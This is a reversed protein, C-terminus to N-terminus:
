DRTGGSSEPLKLGGSFFHNLKAV